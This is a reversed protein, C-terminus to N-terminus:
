RLDWEIPTHNGPGRRTVPNGYPDVRQGAADRIAVHPNESGPTRPSGKKVVMREVGNDDVYKLPGHETQVRKWGQSEAFDVLHSAKASGGSTIQGLASDPDFRVLGSSTQSATDVARLDTTAEIIRPTGRRLIGASTGTKVTGAAAKIAGAVAKIAGPAAKIASAGSMVDPALMAAQGGRYWGAKTNVGNGKLDLPLMATIPNVALTGGAFDAVGRAFGPHREAVTACQNNSGTTDVCLNAIATAARGGTRDWARRADKGASAVAQSGRHVVAKTKATVTRKVTATAARLTQVTATTTRVVPQVVKNNVATVAKGGTADWADRATSTVKNVTKTVVDWPAHGDPDFYQLPDGNAYTYRNLSIPTKLQGFYTDRSTFTGTNPQYWRAGMWVDGSTPDTYDGQYGVSPNTTGTAGAAQGYPDWIRTDTVTGANDLLWAVDGHRNEGVLRSAGNAQVALLEGAPTRSYRESGAAVPDIDTGAYTLATSDATAIRDLSDYGYSTAGRGTQRGLADFTVPIPTTGDDISDLTGRPSWDYTTTSGATETTLRNRADYTYTTAGAATRNGAQDYGYATATSTPDTWGELRGSRDYSYTHTGAAANGTAGITQTTLNGDPDYVYAASALTSGGAALSDTALRGQGDYGYTRTAAPSTNYAVTAVQGADNWDYNTTKGTLPDTAHDLEGRGTYTFSATGAADVRSTMRGAGDYDFSSAPTGAGPVTASLLLGRDDYSLGIAGSPHGVSTRRGALDYGFTRAASTLGSGTGADATLRGLADFTRSITVGPQTETTPLGAADYGVAFTREAPDTQDPTSPEVTSAQTNWPTYTYTTTNGRGDTVRTTNGAADYGYSTTIAASSDPEVVQTLQNLADYTFSTKYTNDAASASRASRLATQNGAPDFTRYVTALVVGTGPEKAITSTARGAPDFVHETRRGLPDVEATRRGAADYSYSSTKGLADTAATLQSAADFASTTVVGAPDQSYTPNGLDDYDRTSTYSATPTEQRVVATQTRARGLDDYGYKSVAGTPDTISTRHGADDYALLTTGRTSQGATLPDLQRVVRNRADFTYDTTFGRRDQASTLNGVQDYAYIETPNLTSGGPPTYAPHDIRTLRNLRDYSRRTVNGRPDAAAVQNGATDYGFRITPRSTTATGGVAEVSVPPALTEVLQGVADYSSDTRHDAATAGAANGRPDVTWVKLGRQDYGFTTTLDDAGNEVTVSDVRGASDYHARTEVSSSGQTVTQRTPNGAPDYDFARVRDVAGMELAANQLLGAEDFTNSTSSLGGGQAVTTKNGADDYSYSELVVDRTAGNRDQYAEFTVTLIRDANDYAIRRKAMATGDPDLQGSRGGTGPRPQYVATTRGAADYDTRQVVVDRPTSGVIPDDVFGLLTVAVPRNREDYDTRYTRGAADIVTAVNSNADFTRSTVGGEADTTRWPRGAADFETTSVQDPTPSASGGADHITTRWLNGNNDYENITQRQNTVSPSVVTNTVAPETVTLPQGLQNWTRTTVANQGGDWTVTDTTVRGLADRDSRHVLGSPDTVTRLDGAPDYGYTTTAVGNNFTRLLGAPVGAGFGHDEGGTTYTWTQTVGSPQETSPPSTETLKDGATNYTFVTKYQNDSAGSSRGDRRAVMNDSADYTFWTTEGAGNTQSALNGRTDYGLKVTNGNPDRVESRFGNADYKSSTLGGAPDIVLTTRFLPDHFYWTAYGRADTVKAVGGYYDYGVRDNVGNETWAVKGDTHYGIELKTTGDPRRIESLKDSSYLYTTCLGGVPNNDRPDCVMSLLDGTYVYNWTLPGSYGPGSVTSTSVSAVKTGSYTFTLSRGSAGDTVSTLLPGTYSLTLARAYRDALATLKGSSDFTEASQDKHALKWGGGTQATLKSVFGLPGTFSGDPNRLHRERRGDGYVVTVDGTTANLEARTEFISSWGQGFIGISADLSNFTRTVALDPGASEVSVDTATEVLNGSGIHVQNVFEGYPDNGFARAPDLTVPWSIIVEGNGARTGSHLWADFARSTDVAGSGGGGGGDPGTWYCGGGGAGGYYGGGGGGAGEGGTGGLGNDAGSGGPYNGGGGTGGGSLTAGTGEGAACWGGTGTSNGAGGAGGAPGGGIGGVGLGTAGAGAAGGGGGAAVVVRDAPRSGAQRVDSAGGGGQGSGITAAGGNWGGTNTGGQGGVNIQLSQGPTVALSAETRGGRGGSTGTGGQAGHADIRVAYVGAPVTWWQPAGTFSFTTSGPAPSAPAPTVPPWTITAAGHGLRHGTQHAVNVVSASAWNSGGGGGGDPGTHHCGGGGGGGYYGGGAGGAGEGGNGGAGFATGAGGGYNGGGGAGGATATAGQGATASCLGGVTTWAGTAGAVGDSGGAGGSGYATTAGFSAGGGGGAVLVRDTSRVGGLRVDTAGGGGWGYATFGGGGNFGGTAAGQGGVNIQLVDGPAVPLTGRLRGGQGGFDGNGGQAGELDVAIAFVGAPVTWWQASGTHSFSVSGPTPTVPAPTTPPWSLSVLGNGQRRGTRHTANAASSIAWSSGGGGGGDPGTWYCAGGAGGGYYGGGGGGASETANGGSGALGGGGYYNGTGGAGGSSATGGQGETGVCWGGTTTSAGTVGATGAVGGSGGSGLAGNAGGSAGGGGGAVILRDSLTGVGRRVDSAGGGGLGGYTSAGGGNFGGVNTGGQGGVHIRLVEGPTVSLDAQSVGGLGGRDPGGGQAGEVVARVSSVGDPVTWTQVGNTFSFTASGTPVDARAPDAWASVLGSGLVAAAVLLRGLM